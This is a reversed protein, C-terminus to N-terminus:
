RRAQRVWRGSPASEAPAPSDVPQSDQSAIPPHVPNAPSTEQAPGQTQAQAQAAQRLRRQEAQVEALVEAPFPARDAPLRVLDLGHLLAMTKARPGTPTSPRVQGDAQIIRFTIQATDRPLAAVRRRESLAEWADSIQEWVAGPEDHALRELHDVRTQPWREVAALELLRRVVQITPIGDEIALGGFTPKQSEQSNQVQDRSTARGPRFGGSRPGSPRFGTSPRQAPAASQAPAAPAAQAPSAAAPGTSAEEESETKEASLQRLRDAEARAAIHKGYAM